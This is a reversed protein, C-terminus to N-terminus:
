AGEQWGATTQEAQLLQDYAQRMLQDMRAQIDAQTAQYLSRLTRPNGKAEDIGADSCLEQMSRCLNSRNIARGRSTVFVPGEAIFQARCYDLLEQRFAPALTVPQPGSRGRVTGGGAKVLAVTVQPLCQLPLGTTAFLKVLLYLRHEGKRRATCLLRLYEARTLRPPEAEGLPGHHMTLDYRGCWRFYNNAASIRMNISRPRYGQQQLHQQWAALTDQGPPGASQLYAYLERVARAYADRTDASWGAHEPAALFDQLTYGPLIAADHDM